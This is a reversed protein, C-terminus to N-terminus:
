MEFTGRVVEWFKESSAVAVASRDPLSLVVTLTHGSAALYSVAWTQDNIEVAACRKETASAGQHPGDLFRWTVSGDEHFAHEITMNAMPGDAFRWKVIKGSLFTM